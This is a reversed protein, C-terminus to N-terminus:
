GLRQPMSQLLTLATAAGSGTAGFSAIDSRVLYRRILAEARDPDTFQAVSGDGFMARAKEVLTDKQRDLPLAAFSKPLGFAGEFVARLPPQGLIGFWKATESAGGTAVDDLERQANLAIRLRDDQEGVAREFGRATWDALIRDAFDSIKTRPPTLDFGFAAAMKQYRKDALKNGLAQPDLTGQELIQRIFARNPLDEELGFSELAVRLLRRDSMLDEATSVKGINERFYAQDRQIRSGRSFAELQKDATRQLFGWGVLGSGPLAPIFSM